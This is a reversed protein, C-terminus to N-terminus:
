LRMRTLRIKRSYVRSLGMYVFFSSTNHANKCNKNAAILSLTAGYSITTITLLNINRNPLFDQTNIGHSMGFVQVECIELIPCIGDLTNDQYIWVYRATRECDKEIITPLTVNGPDTYCSSEPPPLATGNSVRISYGHLRRTNWYDSVGLVCEDYLNRLCIRRHLM